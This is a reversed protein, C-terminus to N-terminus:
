NANKLTTVSQSLKQWLAVTTSHWSLCGDSPIKKLYPVQRNEGELLDVLITENFLLGKETAFMRALKSNPGRSDNLKM